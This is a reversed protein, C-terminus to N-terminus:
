FFILMFFPLAFPSKFAKFRIDAIQKSYTSSFFLVTGMNM